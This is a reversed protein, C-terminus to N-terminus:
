AAAQVLGQIRPRNERVLVPAHSFWNRLHEMYDL